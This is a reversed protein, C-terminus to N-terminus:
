KFSVIVNSKKIEKFPIEKLIEGKKNKDVTSVVISEEKIEELKGEQISNDNLTVHLRRGINKIYQRVLKLPEDVGPSSVELTYAHDLLEEEEIKQGLARSIAACEDITVGQDTDILISIKEATKGANTKVDVIYLPTGETMQEVIQAIKEKTNM